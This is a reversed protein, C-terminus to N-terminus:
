SLATDHPSAEAPTLMRKFTEAHNVQQKEQQWARMHKHKVTHNWWIHQSDRKETEAHSNRHQWPQSADTNSNHTNNVTRANCWKRHNNQSTQQMAWQLRPGRLSVLTYLLPSTMRTKSVAKACMYEMTITVESPVSCWRQQIGEM